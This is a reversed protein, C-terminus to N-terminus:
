SSYLTCNLSYEVDKSHFHPVMLCVFLIRQFFVHDLILCHLFIYATHSTTRVKDNVGDVGYHYYEYNGKVIGVDKCGPPLAVFEHINSLIHPCNMLYKLEFYEENERLNSVRELFKVLLFHAQPITM